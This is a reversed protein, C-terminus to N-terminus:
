FNVTEIEYREVEFCEAYMEKVICRLEKGSIIWANRRL